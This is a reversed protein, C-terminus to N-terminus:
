TAGITFASEAFSVGFRNQTFSPVCVCVCMCQLSEWTTKHPRLNIQWRGNLPLWFVQVPGTETEAEPATRKGARSIYKRTCHETQQKPTATEITTCTYICVVHDCVQNAGAPQFCQSSLLNLSLFSGAWLCICTHTDAHTLTHKCSHTDLTCVTCSSPQEPERCRGSGWGRCVGKGIWM